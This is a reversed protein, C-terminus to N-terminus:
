TVAYNITVSLVLREGSAGWCVSPPSSTLGSVKGLHLGAASAAAVAQDHATGTADALAATLDATSPIGFQTGYASYSYVQSGGAQQAADAAIGLQVPDNSSVTVIASATPNAKQGQNYPFYGSQGVQVPGLTIDSAATGANLMATNIAVERSQADTVAARNSSGSGSVQVTLQEVTAQSASGVTAIGQVQIQGNAVQAPNGTGCSYNGGYYFSGTVASAAFQGTGLAAPAAVVGFSTGAASLPAQAAAGNQGSNSGAPGSVPIFFSGHGSAASNSAVAASNGPSGRLTVVLAATATGTVALAVAVVAAVLGLRSRGRRVEPAVPDIATHGQRPYTTFRQLYGRLRSEVPDDKIPDTM